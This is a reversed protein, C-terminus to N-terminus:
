LDPLRYKIIIYGSGARLRVRITALYVSTYSEQRVELCKTKKKKKQVLNSVLVSQFNIVLKCEIWLKLSHARCM